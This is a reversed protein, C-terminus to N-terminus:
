SLRPREGNPSGTEPVLHGPPIPRNQWQFVMGAPGDIARYLSYRLLNDPDTDDPWRGAVTVTWQDFAMGHALGYLRDRDAGIVLSCYALLPGLFAGCDRPDSYNWDANMVLAVLAWTLLPESRRRVSLTAMRYGFDCLLSYVHSARDLDRQFTRLVDRQQPTAAIYLDVLLAIAEDDTSPLPSEWYPEHEIGEVAAIAKTARDLFEDDIM